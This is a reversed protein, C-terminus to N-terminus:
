ISPINPINYKAMIKAALDVDATNIIKPIIPDICFNTDLRYVLKAVTMAQEFIYKMYKEHRLWANSPTRYEIGYPKPRFNGAKGYTNRRILYPDILVMPIGIYVDAYMVACARAKIDKDPYPWSIHVHGSATRTDGLSVATESINQRMTYVNYDPDCGIELAKPHALETKDFVAHPSIDISLNKEKLVNSIYELMKKNADVFQTATTCPKINFEATVNDEQVWGVSARRPREKTGGILGILSVPKGNIDKGFVEPDCGVAFAKNIM